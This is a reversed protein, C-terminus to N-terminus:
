RLKTNIVKIAYAPHIPYDFNAYFETTPFKRTPNKKLFEEHAEEIEKLYYNYENISTNAWIWEKEITGIIKFFVNFDKAMDQYVKDCM